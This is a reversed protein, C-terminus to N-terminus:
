IENFITSNYNKGMAQIRWLYPDQKFSFETSMFSWLHIQSMM